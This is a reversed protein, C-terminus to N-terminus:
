LRKLFRRVEDHNGMMHFFLVGDTLTFIFRESLGLRSEYVGDALKRIGTGAHLHPKGFSSAVKDLMAGIEQRKEKSLRRLNDRLDECINVPM